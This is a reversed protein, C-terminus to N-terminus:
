VKVDLITGQQITELRRKGDAEYSLVQAKRSEELIRNAKESHLEQLVKVQSVVQQKREDICHVDERPVAPRINENPKYAVRPQSPQITNV